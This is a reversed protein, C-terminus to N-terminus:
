STPSGRNRDKFSAVRRSSQRVFYAHGDDAFSVGEFSLSSGFEEAGDVFCQPNRVQNIMM